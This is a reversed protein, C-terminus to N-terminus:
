WSITTLHATLCQPPFMVVSWDTCMINYLTGLVSMFTHMYVHLTYCCYPVLSVVQEVVSIDEEDKSVPRSKPKVKDSGKSGTSGLCCICESNLIM